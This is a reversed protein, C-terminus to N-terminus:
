LHPKRQKNQKKYPQKEVKNKKKKKKKKKKAITTGEECGLYNKFMVYDNEGFISSIVSSNFLNIKYELTLAPMLEPSISLYPALSDSHIDICGGLNDWKSVVLMSATSSSKKPYILSKDIAVSQGFKSSDGHVRRRDRICMESGVLGRQMEYATKQKFFFFFVSM